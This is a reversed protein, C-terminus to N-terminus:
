TSSTSVDRVGLRANQHRYTRKGGCPDARLRNTWDAPLGALGRPYPRSGSPLVSLTSHRAAWALKGAAMMFAPRHGTTDYLLRGYKETFELAAGQFVARVDTNPGAYIPHGETDTFVLSQRQSTIAVASPRRETNGACEIIADCLSHWCAELDFNRSLM